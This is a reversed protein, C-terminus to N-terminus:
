AYVEERVLDYLAALRPAVNSWDYRRAHERAAEGLRARRADDALLAALEVAFADPEAVVAVGDLERAINVAPTVVVALGAALAEAVAM